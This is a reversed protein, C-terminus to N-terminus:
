AECRNKTQEYVIRGDVVTYAVQIHPIKEIDVTFIDDDFVTFDASFGEKIKGRRHEQGIIEASGVTYLRVAEFRSIKEQPGFGEHSEGFNRRAVAAYIGYLPNPVEIPADSGGAVILGRDLLSKLPHLGQSRKEGLKVIEALYEGQVFQPQMDVAIPLAALKDLIAEDVLSCHILRDLQGELPPYAAFVNLITEIALDGIAHVAVTQGYRRALQVYQELQATSHVLIGYNDPDDCYPERLAATHGGFAGDVFIKMAGFEVYPTSQEKLLAVEEFVSHHQLLHVKFSKEADVIKRFAQIPQSPPGFYSLDESHGGVLGYSQLSAVSKQLAEEIYAPTYYPMNNVILYLATDKLVGTLQGQKKEIIGGEPSPSENTIGAFALAKSNALILHHCSRKIILHAEGLADLESLTPFIPETYATENMGIAVVWQEASVGEMRAGIIHLLEDKSTVNSVDIHLLKEGYGIIHLHSDVFGPYMFNGQLHQITTAQPLLTDVTGVAVIKGDKELVAEVTEGAREMTYITGGTWLTAM